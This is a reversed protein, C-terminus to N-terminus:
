VPQVGRVFLLVTPFSEPDDELIRADVCVQRRLFVHFNVPDEIMDRALLAFEPFSLGTDKFGWHQTPADVSQAFIERANHVTKDNHTLMAILEIMKPRKQM